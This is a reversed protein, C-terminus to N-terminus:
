MVTSLFRRPHWNSGAGRQFARDSCGDLDIWRSQNTAPCAHDSRGTRRTRYDNPALRHEWRQRRSYTPSPVLKFSPRRCYRADDSSPSSLIQLRNADQLARILLSISENAASLVLGGYGLTTNSRGLGFNSLGQGALDETPWAVAAAGHDTQTFIATGAAGAAGAVNFGPTSLTGGTAANRDFLLSDQLGLESGLEFTDDLTVEALLIQVM